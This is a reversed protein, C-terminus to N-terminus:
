CREYWRGCRKHGFWCLSMVQHAKGCRGGEVVVLDTSIAVPDVVVGGVSSGADVLPELGRMICSRGEKM